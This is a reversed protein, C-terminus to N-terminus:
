LLGAIELAREFKSKKMVLFNIDLIEFLKKIDDLAPEIENQSMLEIELEYITTDDTYTTKDLEFIYRKNNLEVNKKIRHNKFQLLPSLLELNINENQLKRIPGSDLHGIDGHQMVHLAQEYPIVEETEMRVAADSVQKTTSKLTVIGYDAQLRLRLAYGIASLERAPTDYFINTQLIEVADEQSFNMLKQYDDETKLHLKLEIEQNETPM